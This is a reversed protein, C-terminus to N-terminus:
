KLKFNVFNLINTQIGTQIKTNPKQNIAVHVDIKKMKQFPLRLQNKELMQSKIVLCLIHLSCSDFKQYISLFIKYRVILTRSLRWVDPTSSDVDGGSGNSRHQRVLAQGSVIGRSVVGVRGAPYVTGPRGGIQGAVTVICRQCLETKM